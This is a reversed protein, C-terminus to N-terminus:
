KFLGLKYRTCGTMCLILDYRKEILLERAICAEENNYSCERTLYKLLECSLNYADAIAQQDNNSIGINYLRDFIRKKILYHERSRVACM